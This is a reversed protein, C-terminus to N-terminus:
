PTNCLQNNQPPRKTYACKNVNESITFLYLRCEDKLSHCDNRCLETQLSHKWAGVVGSFGTVLYMSLFLKFFLCLYGFRSKLYQQLLFMVYCIAWKKFSLRFISYSKMVKWENMRDIIELPKRLLAQVAHQHLWAKKNMLYGRNQEQFNGRNCVLIM